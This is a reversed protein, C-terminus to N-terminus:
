FHFQQLGDSVCHGPRDSREPQGLASTLPPAAIILRRVNRVVVAAKPAVSTAKGRSTNLTASVTMVIRWVFSVCECISGKGGLSRFAPIPPTARRAVSTLRILFSFGLVSSM